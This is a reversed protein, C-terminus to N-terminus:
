RFLLLPAEYELDYLEPYWLTSNFSTDTTRAAFKFTFLKNKMGFSGLKHYM